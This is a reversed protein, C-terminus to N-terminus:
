SPRWLKRRWLFHRRSLRSYKTGHVYVPDDRDAKGVLWHLHEVVAEHVSVFTGRAVATGVLEDDCNRSAYGQGVYNGTTTTLSIVRSDGDPEVTVIRDKEGFRRGGWRNRVTGNARGGLIAELLGDRRVPDIRLLFDLYGQRGGRLTFGYTRDTEAYDVDLKNLAARIAARVEPNAEIDQAIQIRSGEGDYIGALWGAVRALDDPVPDPEDVVHLLTRGVTPTVYERGAPLGPSWAGNLWRHDPTCRVVRGSACTVRVLPADRERVALVTSETFARLTMSGAPVREWGVVRDGPTVDGIPRFTADAMWISAEPPQCYEHWYGEHYIAHQQDAVAGDDAYSRRVLSHTSHTGNVVRGNCLDNTGIVNFGAARADATAEWWGPHFDLDDAGTFLWRARCARYGANIKIAYDGRQGAPGPITVLMEHAHLTRPTPDDTSVIFVVLADPTAAHASDACRRDHGERGWLPILVALDGDDAAM